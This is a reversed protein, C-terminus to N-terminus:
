HMYYSLLNYACIVMCSLQHHQMAVMVIDTGDIGFCFVRTWWGVQPAAIGIGGYKKMALPLMAIKISYKISQIQEKTVLSQQQQM